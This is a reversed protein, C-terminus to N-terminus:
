LLTRSGVYRQRYIARFYHFRVRTFLAFLIFNCTARVITFPMKFLRACLLVKNKPYNAAAVKRHSVRMRAKFLAYVRIFQSANANNDDRTVTACRILFSVFAVVWVVCRLRVLTSNMTASRQGVIYYTSGRPVYSSCCFRRIQM